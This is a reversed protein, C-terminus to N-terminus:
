EEQYPLFAEGCPPLPQNLTFNHHLAREPSPTKGSSRCLPVKWQPPTGKQEGLFSGFIRRPVGCDSRRGAARDEM